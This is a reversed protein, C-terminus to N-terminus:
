LDVINELSWEDSFINVDLLGECFDIHECKFNVFINNIGISLLFLFLIYICINILLLQIYQRPLITFIPHLCFFTRKGTEEIKNM